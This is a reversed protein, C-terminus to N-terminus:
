HCEDVIITGFSRYLENSNPSSAISQIMAVTIHTGITQQGSAIKGIFPKAIGLFAEIREIWQDFLQKRHVIILAPQKKQAVTALAVVTKGSGPPAVIIGIDKKAIIGLSQQQYEYLSGKFSFNVEFLKKREDKLQYVIDHEQCYLLLKGIFGRPLVIVDSKEELMKFYPEIGINKGMRKKIVYDANIFNLNERLSQVLEPKLQNRQITIEDNLVIHLDNSFSFSVAPTSHINQTPSVFLTKYMDDLHRVSVRQINQLYQWQDAYAKGVIDIFCSNEQELAKNQLPLAVLNGLNKGSHFDQNPFLRDYNSNKDYPSIIGADELLQLMIKRSKVAPYNKDFFIWVHGGKGSRSRELSAPINLSTCREFFMRCEDMWSRKSSASEDFDAVIFWSTNDILLPYIGITEKSTLHNVIRADTLQLYQKHKFNQLSGGAAKHKKYEIWDIDYAPIYGNKTDKEWRIAFVDERGKFLSKFLNIQPLTIGPMFAFILIIIKFM